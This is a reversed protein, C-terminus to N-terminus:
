EDTPESEKAEIYGVPEDEIWMGYREEGTPTTTLLAIDIDGIHLTQTYVPIKNGM